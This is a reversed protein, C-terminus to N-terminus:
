PVLIKHFSVNAKAGTINALVDKLSDEMARIDEPKGLVTFQVRQDARLLYIQLFFWSNLNIFFDVKQRSVFVTASDNQGDKDTAMVTFDFYGKMDPSFKVNLFVEGTNKDVIFAQDRFPEDKNLNVNIEGVISYEVVANEGHDADFAQFVFNNFRDQFGTGEQGM